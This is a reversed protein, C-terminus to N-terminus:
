YTNWLHKNFSHTNYELHELHKEYSVTLELLPM